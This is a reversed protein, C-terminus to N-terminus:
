ITQLTLLFTFLLSAFRLIKQVFGSLIRLMEFLSCHNHSFSHGIYSWLASRWSWIYITASIYM